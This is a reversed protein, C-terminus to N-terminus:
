QKIVQGRLEGGGNATTHINFYWRGAQLDAAQAETLVAEGKIVSALSGTLPVVPAANAMAAAPGHFHAATAPGTLGTDTVIWALKRSATDFTAALTGTGTSAKPPVESAAKPDAKYNVVEAAAPQGALLLTSLAAIAFVPHIATIRMTGAIINRHRRQADVPCADAM